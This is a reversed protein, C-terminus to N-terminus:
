LMGADAFSFSGNRAVIVHDLMPVELLESAKRVAETLLADETSPNPSGSPHNHALIFARSGALLPVKLIQRVEVVASSVGGVSAEYISDVRNNGALALVIVYENDACRLHELLPLVDRSSTVVPGVTKEHGVARVLATRVLLREYGGFLQFAEIDLKHTAKSRPNPRACVASPDHISDTLDEYPLEIVLDAAMRCRRVRQASKALQAHPERRM